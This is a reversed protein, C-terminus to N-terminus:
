ARWWCFSDGYHVGTRCVAFGLRALVQLDRQVTRRTVKWGRAALAQHVDGVTAKRPYAPLVSLALTRRAFSTM